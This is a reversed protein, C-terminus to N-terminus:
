QVCTLTCCSITTYIHKYIHVNDTKTVEKIETVCVCVCTHVQITFAYLILTVVTLRFTHTRAHTGSRARSHIHVHTIEQVCACQSARVKPLRLYKQALKIGLRCNNVRHHPKLLEPRPCLGPCVEELLCCLVVGDHWSSMFDDVPMRPVMDQVWALLKAKRTEDLSSLSLKYQRGM